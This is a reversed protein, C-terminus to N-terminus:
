QERVEVRRGMLNGGPIGEQGSRKGALNVGICGELCPGNGEGPLQGWVEEEPSWCCGPSLAWGLVQRVSDTELGM